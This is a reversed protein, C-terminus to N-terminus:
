EFSLPNDTHFPPDRARYDSACVIRVFVDASELSGEDVLSSIGLALEKLATACPDSINNADGNEEDATEPLPKVSRCVQFCDSHTLSPIRIRARLDIDAPGNDALQEQLIRLHSEIGSISVICCDSQRLSTKAGVWDGGTTLLTSKSPPSQQPQADHPVTGTRALSHVSRFSLLFLSLHTTFLVGM